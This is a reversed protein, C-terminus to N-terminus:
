MAERWRSFERKPAYVAAGLAGRVNRIVRCVRWDQISRVGGTSSNGRFVNAM